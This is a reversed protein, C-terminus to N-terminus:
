RRKPFALRLMQMVLQLWSNSRLSSLAIVESGAAVVVAIIAVTAPDM